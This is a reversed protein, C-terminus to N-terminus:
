RVFFVDWAWRGARAGNDDFVKARYRFRNGNQDTKKSEKYTLSISSLGLETLTHLEGPESIGNHNVDQWLLLSPFIADGSDILNDSNGGQAATDFEALALFGNSRFLM